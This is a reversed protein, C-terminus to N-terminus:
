LEDKRKVEDVPTSKTRNGVAGKSEVMGSYSRYVVPHAYVLEYERLTKDWHNLEKDMIERDFKVQPQCVIVPNPQAVLRWALSVVKTLADNVQTQETQQLKSCLSNFLGNTRALERRM